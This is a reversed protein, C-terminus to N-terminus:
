SVPEGAGLGLTPPLRKRLDGGNDAILKAADLQLKANNVVRDAVQVIAGARKIESEIQDPKLDESNLREITEFLIDNLDTLKNKM